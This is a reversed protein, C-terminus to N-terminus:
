NPEAWRKNQTRDVQVRSDNKANFVERTAGNEVLADLEARLSKVLDPRLSALNKEEALDTKLDYLEM